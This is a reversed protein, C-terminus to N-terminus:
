ITLDKMAAALYNGQDIPFLGAIDMDAVHAKRVQYQCIDM